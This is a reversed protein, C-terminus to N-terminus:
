YTYIAIYLSSCIGVCNHAGMGDASIIKGSKEYFIRNKCSIGLIRDSIAFNDNNM